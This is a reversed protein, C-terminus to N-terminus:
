CQCVQPSCAHFLCWCHLLSMGTPQLPIITMGLCEVHQHNSWGDVCVCAWKVQRLLSSVRDMVAEYLDDMRAYLTHKSPSESTPQIMNLFKRFYASELANISVGFSAQWLSLLQQGKVQLDSPFRRDLVVFKGTGTTDCRRRDQSPSMSSCHTSGTSVIYM